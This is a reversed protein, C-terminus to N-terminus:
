ATASTNRTLSYLYWVPCPPSTTQAMLAWSTPTISSSAQLVVNKSVDNGTFVTFVTGNREIGIHTVPLFSGSVTHTAITSGGQRISSVSGWNNESFRAVQAYVANSGDIFSGSANGFILAYILTGDNNNAGMYSTLEIYDQSRASGTLMGAAPFSVSGSAALQIGMVPLATAGIKRTFTGLRITNSGSFSAGERLPNDSVNVAFNTQNYAALFSATTMTGFYVDNPDALATASTTQASLFSIFSAPSDASGSNGLITNPPAMLALITTSGSNSASLPSQVSLTTTSTVSGTAGAGGGVNIITSFFTIPLLSGSCWPIEVCFSPDSSQHEVVGKDRVRTSVPM